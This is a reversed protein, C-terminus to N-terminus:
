RADIGNRKAAGFLPNKCIVLASLQRLRVTVRVRLALSPSPHGRQIGRSASGISDTDQDQSGSDNASPSCARRGREPRSVRGEKPLSLVLTVANPHISWHEVSWGPLWALAIPNASWGNERPNGTPPQIPFPSTAHYAGTGCHSPSSLSGGVPDPNVITLLDSLVVEVVTNVADPM